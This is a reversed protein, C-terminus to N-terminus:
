RRGTTSSPWALQGVPAGCKSSLSVGPRHVDGKVAQVAAPRHNHKPVTNHKGTGYLVTSSPSIREILYYVVKKGKRLVADLDRRKKKGEMRNWEM